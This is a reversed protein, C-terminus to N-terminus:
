RCLPRGTDQGIVQGGDHVSEGTCHPQLSPHSVELTWRFNYRDDDLAPRGLETWNYEPNEMLWVEKATNDLWDGRESKDLEAWSTLRKRCFERQDGTLDAEEINPTAM